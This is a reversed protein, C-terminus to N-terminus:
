AAQVISTGTRINKSQQKKSLALKQDNSIKTTIPSM